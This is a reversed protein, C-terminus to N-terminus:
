ERSVGTKTVWGFRPENFSWESGGGRHVKHMEHKQFVRRLHKPHCYLTSVDRSPWALDANFIQCPKDHAPIRKMSTWSSTENQGRELHLEGLTSTSLSCCFSAVHFFHLLNKRGWKSKLWTLDNYKWFLLEFRREEFYGGHCTAMSFKLIALMLFCVCLMLGYVYLIKSGWCQPDGVEGLNSSRAAEFGRSRSLAISAM